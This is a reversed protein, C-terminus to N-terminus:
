KKKLDKYPLPDHVVKVKFNTTSKREHGYQDKYIKDEAIITRSGDIITPEGNKAKFTLFPRKQKEKEMKALKIAESRAIAQQYKKTEELGLTGQSKSVKFVYEEITMKIADEEAEYQDDAPEDSDEQNPYFGYIKSPGRKQKVGDMDLQSVFLTDDGKDACFSMRAHPIGLNLPLDKYNTTETICDDSDDPDTLKDIRKGAGTKLVMNAGVGFLHLPADALHQENQILVFKCNLPVMTLYNDSHNKASVKDTSTGCDSEDISSFDLQVDIKFRNFAWFKSIHEDIKNDNEDGGLLQRQREISIIWPINFVVNYNRADMQQELYKDFGELLSILNTINSPSSEEIDIGFLQRQREFSIAARIVSPLRTFDKGYKRILLEVKNRIRADAFLKAKELGAAIVEAEPDKALGLTEIQKLISLSSKVIGAEYRTFEQQWVIHLSDQTKRATSDCYSLCYGFDTAPPEPFDIPPYKKVSAMVEQYAKQVYEPIGAPSVFNVSATGGTKYKSLRFATSRLAPPLDITNKIAAGYTKTIADFENFTAVIAPYFMISTKREAMKEYLKDKRKQTKGLESAIKAFPDKKQQVVIIDRPKSWRILTAEPTILTSDDVKKGKYWFLRDTAQAPTPPTVPNKVSITIIPLASEELINHPTQSISQLSLLIIATTLHRKNM